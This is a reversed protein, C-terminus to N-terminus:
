IKSFFPKGVYLKDALISCSGAFIMLGSFLFAPLFSTTSIGHSDTTALADLMMGLLPTGLLHGFFLGFYVVGTVQAIHDIGICQSIAKPMLAFYGGILFGYAIAFVTLLAFSTSFPWIFFITFSSLLVSLWLTNLTGFYDGVWGLGARGLGNAANTFATLLAGQTPTMGNQVAFRSLYFFPCFYGFAVFFPLGFIRWFKPNKLLQGLEFAPSIHISGPEKSESVPSRTKMFIASFLTLLGILIGEARLAWAIGYNAIMFRVFPSLVFGGAGAGATAIGLALGKRRPSFWQAIINVSPFYALPYSMSYLIGQCLFLQWYQTCFSSLVLSAAMCFAGVVTVTRLGFRNGLHASLMGFCGIGSNGMSGLFSLALNTHPGGFFTPDAAYAQLYVGFSSLVGVTAIHIIFSAMVVLWADRGGDPYTPLPRDLHEDEVRLVTLSSIGEITSDKITRM